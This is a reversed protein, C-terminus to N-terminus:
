SFCNSFIKKICLAVMLYHRVCKQADTEFLYAFFLCFLTLVVFVFCLITDKPNTFLTGVVALLAFIWVDIGEGSDGIEKILELNNFLSFLSTMLGGLLASVFFYIFVAKVLTKIGMKRIGYAIICMLVLVLTDIAFAVGGSVSIFLSAVSYVGGLISAM